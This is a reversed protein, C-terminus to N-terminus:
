GVLALRPPEAIDLTVADVGPLHEIAAAVEGDILFDRGLVIAAADGNGLTAHLTVDSRGGRRAALMAALARVAAVDRTTVVCSLRATSALRELRQHARVTIRPTEDGPRRDLEVTLL